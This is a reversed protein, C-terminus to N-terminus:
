PIIKKRKFAGKELEHKIIRVVEKQQEINDKTAGDFINYFEKNIYNVYDLPIDNKDRLKATIIFESHGVFGFKNGISLIQIGNDYKDCWEQLKQKIEDNSYNM